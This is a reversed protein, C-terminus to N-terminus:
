QTRRPGSRSRWRARCARSSARRSTRASWASSCGCTAACRRVSSRSRGTKTRAAAVSRHGFSTSASACGVHAGRRTRTAAAASKRASCGRWSTSCPGCLAGPSRAPASRRVSLLGVRYMASAHATVPRRNARLPLDTLGVALDWGEDQMRRRVSQKLEETSPTTDAREAGGVRVQWNVDGLRGELERPLEVAIQDALERPVGSPAVLGLVVAGDRGQARTMGCGSGGSSAKM